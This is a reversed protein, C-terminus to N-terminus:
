RRERAPAGGLMASAVAKALKDNGRQNYHCCNDSYITQSEDDFLATADLVHVGAARLPPIAALLKPYGIEVYKRYVSDPSLAIKAEEGSFAKHSFYQNPQVVHLYRLQRASLTDQMLRSAEAWLRFAQGDENAPAPTPTPTLFILSEGRQATGLAQALKESRRVLVNERLEDIAFSLALLRQGKSAGLEALRRKVQTLDALQESTEGNPNLSALNALPAMHQMSPMAPSTGATLNIQALATENFGDINVVYDLHQGLALFYNLLLLQQPQKYGGSAFNLLLINRKRFEPTAKLAAILSQEAQLAFWQAVSGGFIGIVFAKGPVPTLPYDHRSLLGYNNTRITEWAPQITSAALRGQREPDVISTLPLGPTRMFGFYPSIRFKILTPAPTQITGAAARSRAYYLEHRQFYYLAVAALEAFLALFAVSM